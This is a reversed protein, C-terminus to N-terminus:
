QGTPRIDISEIWAQAPLDILFHIISCIVNEEIGIRGKRAFTGPALSTLRIGDEILERGLIKDFNHLASKTSIHLSSSRSTDLNTGAAISTVNIIDFPKSLNELRVLQSILYVVNSFNTKLLENISEIPQYKFKGKSRFLTTYPFLTSRPPRRIM